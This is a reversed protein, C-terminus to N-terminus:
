LYRNRKRAKAIGVLIWLFILVVAVGAIIILQERSLIEKGEVNLFKTRQVANKFELQQISDLEKSTKSNTTSTYMFSLFFGNVVTVYVQGTTFINNDRYAIDFVVYDVDGASYFQGDGATVDTISMDTMYPLALFKEILMMKTDYNATRLDFVQESWKEYTQFNYIYDKQNSSVAMLQLGQNSKASLFSKDTYNRTKLVDPDPIGHTAARWDDPPYFTLAVPDSVIYGDQTDAAIDEACVGTAMSFLM